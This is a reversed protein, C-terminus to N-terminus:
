NEGPEPVTQWDDPETSKKEEYFPPLPPTLARAVVFNAAILVVGTVAVLVYRLRWGRPLKALVVAFATLGVVTAAVALPWHDATWRSVTRVQEQRETLPTQTVEFRAFRAPGQAALQYLLVGALLALLGTAGPVILTNPYDSLRTM